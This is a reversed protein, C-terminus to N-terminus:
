TVFRLFDLEFFVGLVALVSIALLSILVAQALIITFAPAANLKDIFAELGTSREVVNAWPAIRNFPMADNLQLTPAAGWDRPPQQPPVASIPIHQPSYVPFACARRLQEYERKTASRGSTRLKNSALSLRQAVTSPAIELKQAIQKNTEYGALLLDLVECQGASLSNLIRSAGSRNRDDFVDSSAIKLTM